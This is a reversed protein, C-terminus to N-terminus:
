RAIGEMRGVSTIIPDPKYMFHIEPISYYAAGSPLEVGIVGLENSGRSASTVCSIM